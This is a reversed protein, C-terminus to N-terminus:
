CDLVHQPSESFIFMIPFLVEQSEVKVCCIIANEM